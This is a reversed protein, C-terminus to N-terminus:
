KRERRLLTLYIALAPIFQRCISKYDTSTLCKGTDEPVKSGPECFNLKTITGNILEANFKGENHWTLTNKIERFNDM